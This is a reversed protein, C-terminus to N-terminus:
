YDPCSVGEHHWKTRATSSPVLCGGNTKKNRNYPHFAHPKSINVSVPLPVAPKRTINKTIVTSKRQIDQTNRELVM